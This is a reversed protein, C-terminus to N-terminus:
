LVSFYNNGLINLNGIAAIGKMIFQAAQADM